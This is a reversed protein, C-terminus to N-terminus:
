RLCNDKKGPAAIPFPPQQVRSRPRARRTKPFHTPAQRRSGAGRTWSWCCVIPRASRDSARRRSFLLRRPEKLSLHSSAFRLNGSQVPVARDGYHSTAEESQLRFSFRYALQSRPPRRVNKRDAYHREIEQLLAAVLDLLQLFDTPWGNRFRSTLIGSNIRFCQRLSHHPKTVGEKGAINEFQHTHCSGHLLAVSRVDIM